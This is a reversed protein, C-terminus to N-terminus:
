DDATSALKLDRPYAEILRRATDIQEITTRVAEDGTITGSIYVSWFQGGVRGARLRAIDTMLPKERKDTDRELGEVSQQHTERLEWPLDNHGDILPTRKLIRDIRAKVKPDIPQQALSPAAAIMVALLVFWRM